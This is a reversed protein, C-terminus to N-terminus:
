SKRRSRRRRGHAGPADGAGGGRGRALGLEALVGDAGDPEEEAETAPAEVVSCARRVRLYRLVDDPAAALVRPRKMVVVVSARFTPDGAMDALTRRMHEPSMGLFWANAEGVLQPTPAITITPEIALRAILNDSGGLTQPGSSRM